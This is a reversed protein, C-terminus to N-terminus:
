PQNGREGSSRHGAAMRRLATNNCKAYIDWVAAHRRPPEPAWRASPRQLPTANAAHRPASPTLPRNETGPKWRRDPAPACRRPAPSQLDLRKMARNPSIKQFKAYPLQRGPATSFRRMARRPTTTRCTGRGARAETEGVGERGDWGSITQDERMGADARTRAVRKRSVECCVGATDVKVGLHAM